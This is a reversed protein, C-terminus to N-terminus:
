QYLFAPRFHCDVRRQSPSSRHPREEECVRLRSREVLCPRPSVVAEIRPGLRHARRYGTGRAHCGAIRLQRRVFAYESLRLLRAPLSGARRSRPHPPHRRSSGRHQNQGSQPLHRRRHRGRCLRRECLGAQHRQRDLLRGNQFGQIGLRARHSALNRARLRARRPEDHGPLHRGM